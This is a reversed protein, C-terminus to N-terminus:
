GSYLRINNSMNAHFVHALCVFCVGHFLIFFGCLFIALGTSSLDRCSMM